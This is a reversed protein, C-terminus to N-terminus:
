AVARKAAYIDFAPLGVAAAVDRLFAAPEFYREPGISAVTVGLVHLPRECRVSVRQLASLLAQGRVAIQTPDRVVIQRVEGASAFRSLAPAGLAGDIRIAPQAPDAQPIALRAVLARVDSIVAAPTAATAAGTAVVIGHGSGALAAVRDVAGDLVVFQAGLEFLRAISARVGSATPAGAIEYFGPERVAAYALPGAATELSSLDLLEVAPTVPLVGRATALLAGPHLFLRPKPRADTADVSEGDRGISSLGYRVGRAHLEECLARVVVTKGANKGTGVVAISQLGNALALDLLEAAARAPAILGM